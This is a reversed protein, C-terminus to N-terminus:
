VKQNIKMRPVKLRLTLTSCKNKMPFWSTPNDDVPLIPTHCEIVCCQCTWSTTGMEDNSVAPEKRSRPQLLPEM